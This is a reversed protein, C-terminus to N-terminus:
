FPGFGNSIRIETPDGATFGTAPDIRYAVFLYKYLYILPLLAIESTSEAKTVLEPFEIPTVTSERMAAALWSLLKLALDPRVAFTKRM